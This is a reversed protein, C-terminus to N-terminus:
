LRVELIETMRTTYCTSFQEQKMKLKRDQGEVTLRVIDEGISYNIIDYAQM